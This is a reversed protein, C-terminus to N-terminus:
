RDGGPAHSLPTIQPFSPAGQPHPQLLCPTGSGQDDDLVFHQIRRLMEPSFGGSAVTTTALKPFAPSAGCGRDDFLTLPSGAGVRVDGSEYANARMWPQRTPYQALSGPNLAMGVRAYHVGAGRSGYGAATAQTAATVNSVLTNLSAAQPTIYALAPQLQDLFPAFAAVFPRTRDLFRRTAPLGRRAAADLGNVGRVLGGLERATAPVE